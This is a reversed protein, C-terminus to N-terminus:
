SQSNQKTKKEYTFQRGLLLGVEEEASLKKIGPFGIDELVAFVERNDVPSVYRSVAAYHKVRETGEHVPILAAPGGVCGGQCGMGELFNADGKGALYEALLKQCDAVGDAQRARIQIQGKRNIRELCAAIASTVGGTHAYSRGGWSAQPKDNDPLMDPTLGMADFIMQVEKFTVVLDIAGFVDPDLAETKKALCPGIFVVKAEPAWAKLVRGAAIMPSVSPSIKDVLEPFKKLIMKVWIPCCCSTIMYDEEKRVRHDFELAERISLMDAFLAVEVMDTFGMEKFASRIKGPSMEPGFQGVFAPAVAAYVPGKAERLLNILPVIQPREMIAGKECAQICRECDICNEFDISAKRDAKQLAEVPCTATCPSNEDLDCEGDCFSDLTVVMPTEPALNEAAIGMAARILDKIRYKLTETLGYKAILEEEITALREEWAAQTVEELIKAQLERNNQLMFIVGDDNESRPM